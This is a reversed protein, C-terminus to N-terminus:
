LYARYFGDIQCVDCRASCEMCLGNNGFTGSPCSEVCSFTYKRDFYM